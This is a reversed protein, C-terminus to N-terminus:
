VPEKWREVLTNLPCAFYELLDVQPVSRADSQKTHAVWSTTAYHLFPFEITIKNHEYSTSQDIEKMALYRICIRSLRYHAMGTAADTSAVSDDLASLGKEVFFDKVSQHVFQVVKTDSTVEALGRSQTQVRRKLGDHDSPYDGASQCEYLSQHPCDADILMAWRLEDLSLPRTAFCIWQILKLSDPSMSQILQRYLTDLEQPVSLIVAEIKKLGVGEQDLDLVQNVMLYAWIFVGQAHKIILDPITSPFSSLKDQVFTRIDKGNENELCIEFQCTQDLIPYHRCTFCIRFQSGTSPFGQLLSKFEQALKVADEKGCEDLADVFLWVPHTTLVKLLSSKLFRQLERPHWQWEEGPKGVTECRQQFTAMLDTLEEPVQRLLQHLLSRFLGFPTKQLKSGRSHFFFSLILAGEGTNPMAMADNLVYRLLTSKGSGPKGKIWLLGRDCSAWSTYTEHRLLWDCTGQAATDIDYFRSDIQPFALSRLCERLPDFHEKTGFYVPEGFKAWSFQPGKGESINRAPSQSRGLGKWLMDWNTELTAPPMFNWDLHEDDLPPDDFFVQDHVKCSQNDLIETEPIDSLSVDRLNNLSRSTRSARKENGDSSSGAISEGDGFDVGLYPLSLFSIYKLHHRIHRTLKSYPKEHIIPEIDNPICDCLPCVFPERTATKKSRRARGQIQSSTFQKHHDDKLHSLFHDKQDFYKSESHEIDCRWTETHIRQVWKMTHRTQMHEVWDQKRKFFKPPEKCQESICVYPHLDGDVHPKWKEETLASIDMPESCITCTARGTRTDRKPMPPYPLEDGEMDKVTSGTSLLSRSPKVSRMHQRIVTTPSLMSPTTELDTEPNRMVPKAPILDEGLQQSKEELPDERAKNSPERQHALKRNHSQLYQLYVGRAHVSQALQDLLSKRANPYRAKLLLLCSSDGNGGGYTKQRVDHTQRASRRIAVALIFLREISSKVASTGLSAELEEKDEEEGKELQNKKAWELNREIMTLLDIVMNRIDDHSALRADLSARPVAFAGIYAAWTKFQGRLEGVLALSEESLYTDTIYDDFLALCKRSAHYIPELSNQSPSIPDM